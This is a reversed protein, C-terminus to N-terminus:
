CSFCVSARDVEAMLDSCPRDAFARSSLLSRETWASLRCLVDLFGVFREPPSADCLTNLRQQLEVSEEGAFHIGRISDALLRRVQDMEPLDFFLKGFCDASFQVVVAECATEVNGTIHSHWTHPLDPGILVLDGPDYHASHDGVFRQGYGSIIAVLEYEAHRHWMFPYHDENRRYLSFSSAPTTQIKELVPKM